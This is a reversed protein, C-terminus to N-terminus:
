YRKLSFRLVKTGMQSPSKRVSLLGGLGFSIRSTLWWTLAGFLTASEIKLASKGEISFKGSSIGDGDEVSTLPKGHVLDTTPFRRGFRKFTSSRM